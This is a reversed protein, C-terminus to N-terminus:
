PSPEPLMTNLPCDRSVFLLSPRPPVPTGGRASCPRVHLWTSVAHWCPARVQIHANKCEELQHIEQRRRLDAEERAAKLRRESKTSLQRATAQLENRLKSVQKAHEVALARRVEEHALEQM